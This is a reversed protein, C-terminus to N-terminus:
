EGWNSPTNWYILMVLKRILEFANSISDSRVSVLKLHWLPRDQSIFRDPRRHVFTSKPRVNSMKTLFTSNKRSILRNWDIVPWKWDCFHLNEVSFVRSKCKPCKQYMWWFSWTVNGFPSKTRICNKKKRPPVKLESKTYIPIDSPHQDIALWCQTNSSIPLRKSFHFIHDFLVMPASSFVRILKRSM